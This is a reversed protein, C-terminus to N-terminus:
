EGVPGYPVRREITFGERPDVVAVPAIRSLPAVLRAADGAVVAVAKDRAFYRRATRQLAERSVQRVSARFQDHYDLPLGLVVIKTALAALAGITETRVLFGDALYRTALETEVPSAAETRLRDIHELLASLAEPARETRTGASLFISVPGHALEQVASGTRYALSRKERVDLFLRGAVGGGLLQNAVELEVWDESHRAPGLLGVHVESQQSGPRDVVHIELSRPPLPTPYGVPEPAAGKWTGFAREAEARIEERSVAGAAVLVANEPVFHAAHWQRSDMLQLQRIADPTSDYAAYPHAGTPLEYLERYLVMKAGWTGSTKALSSVREIEREKLKLFEAGDFRPRRALAALVDMAAALHQTTVALSLVTRDFEASIDLSAGLSEAHEVLQRSTWPGAGGDKLLGATLRSVGRDERDTETGSLVVLELQVLPLGARQVTRLRLGNSLSDDLVEPLLGDPALGSEPPSALPPPPPPGMPATDSVDGGTDATPARVDTGPAGCGALLSLAFTLVAAAAAELRVRSRM